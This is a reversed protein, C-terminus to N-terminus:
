VATLNGREDGYVEERWLVLVFVFCSQTQWKGAERKWSVRTLIVKRSPLGLARRM